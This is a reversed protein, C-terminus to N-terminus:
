KGRSAVPPNPPSARLPSGASTELVVVCGDITELNRILGAGGGYPGDRYQSMAAMDERIPASGSDMAPKLANIDGSGAATIKCTPAFTTGAAM